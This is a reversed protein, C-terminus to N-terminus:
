NKIIKFTKIEQKNDIIKVIYVSAVRDIMIITTEIDMIKQSDVMNGSIDFLQYSLNRNNYSEVKLTIIDTTPNPFATCELNIDKADDIGNVISIEYAQQIGQAVTGNTGTNTTYAIQGVTYSTSGSSGTANSGSSSVTEQAQLGFIGTGLLAVIILRLKKQKMILTIFIEIKILIHRKNKAGLYAM